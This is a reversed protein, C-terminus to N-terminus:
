FKLSKLIWLDSFIQQLKFIVEIQRFTLGHRLTFSKDGFLTNWLLITKTPSVRARSSSSCFILSIFSFISDSLYRHIISLFFTGSGSYYLFLISIYLLFILLLTKNAPLWKLWKKKEINETINM